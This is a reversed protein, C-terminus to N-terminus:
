GHDLVERRGRSLEARITREQHQDHSASELALRLSGLGKATQSKVTGPACGLVQAVQEVSLDCYYRLVVTARQGAPLAALAANLDVAADYDPGADALDPLDAGLSVRRAWASRRESLFARVLITRLYAETHDMVTARGWHVYLRTIAVQVLDDARHWDQCLLYAIRRLAPLRASVFETFEDDRRSRRVPPGCKTPTEYGNLTGPSAIPQGPLPV